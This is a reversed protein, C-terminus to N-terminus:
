RIKFTSMPLLGQHYMDVLEGNMIGAIYAAGVMGYSAGRPRLIVPNREGGLITVADNIRVPSGAMGSFGLKTTFFYRGPLIVPFLPEKMSILNLTGQNMLAASTALQPTQLDKHMIKLREENNYFTTGLLVEMIDDVTRRVALFPSRPPLPKSSARYAIGTLQRISKKIHDETPGLEIAFTIKDFYFGNIALL